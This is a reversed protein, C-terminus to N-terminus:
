VVSWTRLDKCSVQSIKWDTLIQISGLISLSSYHNDPIGEYKTHTDGWKKTMRAMSVDMWAARSSSLKAEYGDWSSWCHLCSNLMLNGIKRSEFIWESQIWSMSRPLFLPNRVTSPAFGAIDAVIWSPSPVSPVWAIRPCRIPYSAQRLCYLNRPGTPKGM